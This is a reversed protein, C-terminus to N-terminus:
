DTAKQISESRVFRLPLGDVHVQAGDPSTRVMQALSVSQLASEIATNILRWNTRVGCHNEIACCSHRGACETVALPGEVAEVVDAVSIEAPMRALRYGGNVGRVSVVLHHQALVRLLKSVTPLGIQNDLALEHASHVRSPQRALASMILTAYDTLKGLKLMLVLGNQYHNSTYDGPM